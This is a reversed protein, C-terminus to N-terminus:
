RAPCLNAIAGGDCSPGPAWPLFASPDAAGARSRAWFRADLRSLTRVHRETLVATRHRPIGGALVGQPSQRVLCKRAVSAKCIM